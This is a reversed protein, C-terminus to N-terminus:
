SVNGARASRDLVAIMTSAAALPTQRLFASAVKALTALDATLAAQASPLGLQSALATEVHFGMVATLAPGVSTQSAHEAEAFAVV